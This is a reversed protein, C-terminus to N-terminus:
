SGSARIELDVAVVEVVLKALGGAIRRAEEVTADQADVAADEAAAELRYLEDRLNEVSSRSVLVDDAALGRVQALRRSEYARQRHSSRCYRPPRGPGKPRAFKGGCWACRHMTSKTVTVINGCFGAAPRAAPPM